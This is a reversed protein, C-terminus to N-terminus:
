IKRIKNKREPINVSFNRKKEPLDDITIPKRKTVKNSENSLEKNIDEKKETENFIYKNIVNESKNTKNNDLNIDTENYIDNSVTLNKEEKDFMIKNFIIIMLVGMPDGIFILLVIFWKMINDMDTNLVDSLYILPGLESISNNNLEIEFKEDSLHLITSDIIYNNKNIEDSIKVSTEIQNEITKRNSSSIAVNKNGDKDYWIQKNDGLSSILNNLNDQNNNLRIVNSEKTKNLIEIRSELMSIKNNVNDYKNISTKYGNSLFGYVGLSTILMTIIVTFTLLIRYVINIEKNFTHLVSTSVIKSIEISIFFILGVIGTASFLMMLGSVSVYAVTSLLVLGM